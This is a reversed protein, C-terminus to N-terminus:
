VKPLSEVVALKERLSRLTGEGALIARVAMAFADAVAIAEEMSYKQELYSLEFSLEGADASTTFLDFDYNQVKEVEPHGVHVYGLDGVPIHERTLVNQHLVLTSHQYWNEKSPWDTCKSAITNAGLHAHSAASLVQSQVHNILDSCSMADTCQIRLPCESVCCGIIEGSGVVDEDRGHMLMLFIVNDKGSLASLVMAWACHVVTSMTVEQRKDSPQLYLVKSLTRVNTFFDAEAAAMTEPKLRLTTPTSGQLVKNWYSISDPSQQLAHDNLYDLYSPRTALRHNRCAKILDGLMLDWSLGDFISHHIYVVLNIGALAPSASRQLSAFVPHSLYDHNNSKAVVEEHCDHTRLRQEWEESETPVLTQVLEGSELKHFKIRLAETNEFLLRLARQLQEFAINGRFTMNYKYLQNQTQGQMKTAYFRQFDTTSSTSGCRARENLQKAEVSSNPSVVDGLLKKKALDALSVGSLVDASTFHFGEARADRVLIMATMSNGGAQAWRSAPTLSDTNVKLIQSWIRRLSNLELSSVEQHPQDCNAINETPESQAPEPNRTTLRKMHLEKISRRDLKGTATRTMENVIVVKAPIMWTPVAADLREIMEEHVLREREETEDNRKEHNLPADVGERLQVFAVLVEADTDDGQAIKDVVVQGINGDFSKLIQHEIEAAEVRQGHIKLQADKRGYLFLEGNEQYQVLDGTKYWRRGDVGAGFSLAWAPSQIFAATTKSPEKLYGQAVSYGEVILEGLGGVPMLRDHNWPDVIWYRLWSSNGISRHSSSDKSLVATSNMSCAESQGYGNRITVGSNTLWADVLSRPIAEGVLVLTKISPVKTPNIVKAISPTMCIYDPRLRRIANELDNIREDSSPICVTGGVLLTSITDLVSVVFSYSACQFVRTGESIGFKHVHQTYGTVWAFHQTVIAKPIGSSGSTFILFAADEPSVIPLEQCQNDHQDVSCKEVELYGGHGDVIVVQPILSCSLSTYQRSTIVHTSSTRQIMIKLREFPLTPELFLFAAGAKLIALMSVATWKSKDLMISVICGRKVGATILTRALRQSEVELEQRTFHGDWADVATKHPNQAATQSICDHITRFDMEQPNSNFSRIFPEDDSGLITPQAIVENGNALLISRSLTALRQGYKEVHFTRVSSEEYWILFQLESQDNSTTCIIQLPIGELPNKSPVDADQSVHVLASPASPNACSITQVSTTIDSLAEDITTKPDIVLSCTSHEISHQQKTSILCRVTTDGTFEWVLQAFALSICKEINRCGEWDDHQELDINFVRVAWSEPHNKTPHGLQCPFQSFDGM